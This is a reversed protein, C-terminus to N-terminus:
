ESMAALGIAAIEEHGATTKLAVEKLLIACVLGLGFIFAGVRFVDHFAVIVAQVVADHIAPPALNLADAGAHILSLGPTPGLAEHGPLGGILAGLRGILVASFLAVGFSGGMSRFFNISSTGAGLDRVDIANQVSVMVPPGTMGTGFGLVTTYLAILLMPTDRGATSLLLSGIVTCILGFVPFPKYRGIRAILRGTTIAAVV